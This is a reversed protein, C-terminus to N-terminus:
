KTEIGYKKCIGRLGDDLCDCTARIEWGSNLRRLECAVIATKGASDEGIPLLFRHSAMSKKAPDCLVASIPYNGYREKVDGLVYIDSDLAAGIGDADRIAMAFAIKEVNRPIKSFDITFGDQMEVSGSSHVPHKYFVFDDDSEAMGDSGLLIAAAYSDFISKWSLDVAIKGTNPFRKSIDIAEGKEMAQYGTVPFRNLKDRANSDAGHAILIKAIEEDDCTHLPTRGSKDRANVDAGAEILAKAVEGNKATHLPTRGFKDRANVDAGAEILAKAM